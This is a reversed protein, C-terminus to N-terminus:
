SDEYSAESETLTRFQLDVLGLSKLTTRTIDLTNLRRKLDARILSELTNVTMEISTVEQQCLACRKRRKALIPHRGKRVDVTQYNHQCTSM